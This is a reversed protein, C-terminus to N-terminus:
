ILLGKWQGWTNGPCATQMVEKHGKIVVNGLGQTLHAILLNLSEIQAKNPQRGMFSGLLCIGISYPNANGAHNSISTLRNTQLVKGNRNIIFHYGIGEWGWKSIHYDAIKRAGVKASVASHHIIIHTIDELIRQPYTGNTPLADTIDHIQVLTGQRPMDGVAQVVKRYMGSEEVWVFQSWQPDPSSGIFASASRVYPYKYLETYFEVYRQAMVDPNLNPTSDGFETVEISMDPFYGHYKRYRQGWDPNDNNGHQWYPHCGLWDSDRVQDACVSLWMMDNHPWNPALGPFGFKAWPANEKLTPLVLNYWDRFARADEGTSGFGEIGAHHNPENHVEFKRVGLDGLAHIIPAMRVVFDTARPVTGIGFRDDYLRVIFEMKPHDNLIERYASSDTLSMMKMTEIKAVGIATYDEQKFSSDNRGHLGIRAM